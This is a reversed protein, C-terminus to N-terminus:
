DESWAMYVSHVKANPDATAQGASPYHRKDRRSEEYKRYMLYRKDAKIAYQLTGELFLADSRTMRDELVVMHQWGSTRYARGRDWKPQATFGIIYETVYPSAAIAWVTDLLGEIRAARM